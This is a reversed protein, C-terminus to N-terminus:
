AAVEPGGHRFASLVLLHMSVRARFASPRSPWRRFASLVLLHMSVIQHRPNDHGRELDSLVSCWFTCQSPNCSTATSRSRETPFCQAGFPANLRHVGRIPVARGLDSLVSCWFTCQSSRIRSTTLRKVSTPFCQAGFPANLSAGDSRPTPKADPRFASLVLLHMSVALQQGCRGSIVHRFASLVLLHMSVPNTNAHVGGLGRTPFCQAGFPANLRGDGCGVLSGFRTPFCQAGFPANLGIDDVWDELFSAVEQRFASLVLLHMSVGGDFPVAGVHEERRFASLVLLHMSVRCVPRELTQRRFDSLVSCWFTCQSRSGFVEKAVGVVPRFASLVLLHMSVWESLRYRVEWAKDSLVSCWFTCQSRKSFAVIGDDSVPRFASLVLLHMSVPRRRLGRVRLWVDSLVSCWFTCQSETTNRQPVAETSRRFASLVLLHM